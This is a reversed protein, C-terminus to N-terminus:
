PPPPAAAHVASSGAQRGALLEQQRKLNAEAVAIASALRDSIAYDGENSMNLYMSFKAAEEASVCNVLETYVRKVHM